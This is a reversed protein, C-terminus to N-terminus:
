QRMRAPSSRENFDFQLEYILLRMDDVDLQDHLIRGHAFEYVIHAGEGRIPESM